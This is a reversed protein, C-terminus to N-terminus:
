LITPGQQHGGTAAFSVSGGAQLQNSLADLMDKTM